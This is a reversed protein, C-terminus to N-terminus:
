IHNEDFLSKFSDFLTQANGIDVVITALLANTVDSRQLDFYRIVIALVQM